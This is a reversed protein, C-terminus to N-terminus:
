CPITSSSDVLGDSLARTASVLSCYSQLLLFLKYFRVPNKVHVWQDTRSDVFDGNILLKVTPQLSSGAGCRLWGRLCALVM